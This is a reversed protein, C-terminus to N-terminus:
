AESAWLLCDPYPCEEDPLAEKELYHMWLKGIVLKLAVPETYATWSFSCRRCPLLQCNWSRQVNGRWTHSGPPIFEKARSQPIVGEPMAPPPPGGAEKKPPFHKKYAEQYEKSFDESMNIDRSLAEQEQKAKAARAEAEYSALTGELQTFVPLQM